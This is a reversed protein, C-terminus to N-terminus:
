LKRVDRQSQKITVKAPASIVRGVSNSIVVRYSGASEITYNAETAGVINRENRQWQFSPTPVAAASVNLVVKAGANVVVSGPQSTIIPALAPTWQGGLVFKPDSYNAITEKDDPLKLQRAIALRRSTDVPAGSLGFSHYEWFHINPAENSQDLRWAIEGVSDSLVCDLLVVESYPFRAPAVRSLFNGSVGPAGDFV